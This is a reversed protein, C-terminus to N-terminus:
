GSGAQRTKSRTIWSLSHTHPRLISSPLKSPRTSLCHTQATDLEFFLPFGGLYRHYSTTLIKDPFAISWQGQEDTDFYLTVESHTMDLTVHYESGVKNVDCFATEANCSITKELTPTTVTVSKTRDLAVYQDVILTVTDPFVNIYSDLSPSTSLINPEAIEGVVGVVVDGTGTYRCRLYWHDDTDSKTSSQTDV